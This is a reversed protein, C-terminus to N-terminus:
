LDAKEKIKPANFFSFVSGGYNKSTEFSEFSSLDSFKSHEIILLGNEILLNNEFVARHISKFEEINYAYPPDAFIINFTQNTSDLFKLVDSKITNLPIELLEASDNIFAICAYNNDVSTVDLTGRSGFEHSIGGSGAFLDLVKLDEFYYRNNIINFLAEKAMDKTPRVPLNKPPRIRRGKHNGSIIRM